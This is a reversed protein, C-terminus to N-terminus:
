LAVKDSPSVVTETARSSDPDAIQDPKFVCNVEKEKKKKKIKNCKEANNVPCDKYYQSPIFALLSAFCLSRLSTDSGRHKLMSCVPKAAGMQKPMRQTVHISPICKLKWLM